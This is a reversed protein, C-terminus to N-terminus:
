REARQEPVHGVEGVVLQPVMRAAHHNGVQPRGGLLGLVRRRGHRRFGDHAEQGRAFHDVAHVEGLGDQFGPVRLFRHAHAHNVLVGRAHEGLDQSDETVGAQVDKLLYM